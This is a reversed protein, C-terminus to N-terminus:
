MELMARSSTSGSDGPREDARPGVAEPAGGVAAVIRNRGGLCRNEVKGRLGAPVDDAHALDGVDEGMAPGTTYEFGLAIAREAVARQLPSHAEGVAPQQKDVEDIEAPLEGVPAVNCAVSRRELGEIRAQGLERAPRAGAIGEDDDGDAIRGPRT